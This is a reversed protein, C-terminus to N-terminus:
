VGRLGLGCLGRLWSERGKKGAEKARGKGEEGELGVRYGYAEVEQVLRGCEVSFDGRNAGVSRRGFRKWGRGKSRMVDDGVGVVVNM